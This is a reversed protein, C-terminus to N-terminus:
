RNLFEKTKAKYSCPKSCYKARNEKHKVVFFVAGCVLCIKKIKPTKNWPIPMVGKKDKNWPKQGKKFETKISRRKGSNAISAKMAIEPHYLKTHKGHSECLELNEIKNNTINHDIHHVVEEKTLFRGLHKEMILRHEAIYGQKGSNPHEPKLIYFYGSRLIKGGKWNSAKDGSYLGVTGKNWPTRGKLKERHYETRKYIGTPM